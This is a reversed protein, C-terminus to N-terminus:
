TLGSAAYNKDVHIFYTATLEDKKQVCGELLRKAELTRIGYRALFEHKLQVWSQFPGQSDLFTQAGSDMLNYFVQYALTLEIDEM